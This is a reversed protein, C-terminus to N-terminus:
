QEPSLRKGKGEEVNETPAGKGQFWTWRVVTLLQEDVDTNSSRQRLVVKDNRRVPIVVSVAPFQERRAPKAKRRPRFSPSTALTAQSQNVSRTQPGLRSFARAQSETLRGRVDNDSIAESISPDNVQVIQTAVGDRTVGTQDGHNELGSPTDDIVFEDQTITEISPRAPVDTPPSPLVRRCTLSVEPPAPSKDTEDYIGLSSINDRRWRLLDTPAVASAIPPDAHHLQPEAPILATDLDGRSEGLPCLDPHDTILYTHDSEPVDTHCENRLGSDLHLDLDTDHTKQSNQTMAREIEIDFESGARSDLNEMVADRSQLSVDTSTSSALRFTPEQFYPRPPLARPLIQPTVSANYARWCSAPIAPSSKTPPHSYFSINDLSIHM